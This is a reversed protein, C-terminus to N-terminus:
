PYLNWGFQISNIRDDRVDDGIADSGTVFTEAQQNSALVPVIPVPITTTVSDAGIM